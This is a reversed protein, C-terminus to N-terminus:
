PADPLEFVFSPEDPDNVRFVESGGCGCKCYSAHAEYKVGGCGGRYNECGLEDYIDGDGRSCAGWNFLPESCDPCNM